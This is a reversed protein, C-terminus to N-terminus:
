TVIMGATLNLISGTVATGEDSAVFVAADTLEKLTTLHKRHTFSKMMDYFQESTVGHAKHHIDWVEGILPTDHIGTTVLCVARIGNSGYEVSLSRSLAEIAAWAPIMGGVFPASMRSANPVHTLIIGSGQKIMHPLAAKATIFHSKAYTSIPRFFSEVSLDVLPTGQIGTQSLGITNVSIDVRGAISIVEQIHKGVAEENLADVLRTEIKNGKVNVESKVANLKPENRGTLFVHAGHESFAKAIACGLTGNGYIVAVKNELRKM